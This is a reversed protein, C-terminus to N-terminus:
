TGAVPCRTGEVPPSPVHGRPTRSLTPDGSVLHWSAALRWCRDRSHVKGPAQQLVRRGQWLPSTVSLPSAVCYLDKALKPNKVAIARFRRILVADDSCLM